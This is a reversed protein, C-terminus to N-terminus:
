KYTTGDQKQKLLRRVETKDQKAGQVYIQNM